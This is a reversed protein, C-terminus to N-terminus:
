LGEKALMDLIDLYFAIANFRLRNGTIEGALWKLRNTWNILDLHSVGELTGKYGGEGGWKSSAVSVLGDNYGEVQQLLRHSLRFVSWFSPQMSAGYSFYRVDEVDPTTPNFTNQMYDRTLQAFAGTDIGLRELAYYLQALRDDGIQKLVYDAVASGRHPTAITTLSKVKFDTPKLHTIMYRSDLGRMSHAIINVEKGRAGAVIDKALEEARMEISASPPVTATIVQVGKMSLADEIGRWYQVGPLYRGALRLTDFGLLGHALVVPHKPADYQDRIAAYEDRIVKGLDELRPDLVDSATHASSRFGRSSPCRRLNNYQFVTRKHCLSLSRVTRFQTVASRM